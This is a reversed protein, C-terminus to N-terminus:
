PVLVFYFLQKYQLKYYHLCIKYSIFYRCRWICLYLWFPLLLFIFMTRSMFIASMVCNKPSEIHTNYYKYYDERCRKVDHSSCPSRQKPRRRPRRQKTGAQTWGEQPSWPVDDQQRREEVQGAEAPEEEAPRGHHAGHDCAPDFSFGAGTEM